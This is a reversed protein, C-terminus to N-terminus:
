KISGLVCHNQAQKLKICFTIFQFTVGNIM